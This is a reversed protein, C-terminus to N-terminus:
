KRRYKTTLQLLEVKYKKLLVITLIILALYRVFWYKIFLGAILSIAFFSISYIIYKACIINTQKCVYRCIIMHFLMLAFYGLFTTLAAVEYGVKNLLILNLIWNIVAALASGIAIYKTKYEITEFTAYYSYIYQCFCGAVIPNIFQATGWYKNDALVKIIEPASLIFMICIIFMFGISKEMKANIQNDDKCYYEYLFPKIAMSSANLLFMIMTGITYGYSYLGTENNTFYNSIMIRDIQGLIIMALGHFIMPIAIPFAFKLYDFRYAKIKLFGINDKIILASIIGSVITIGIVRGYYTNNKEFCILVISLITSVLARSVCILTYKKYDGLIALKNNYIDIITYFVLEIWLLIILKSPIKLTSELVNNVNGFLSLFVMIIPIIIAVRGVVTVYEDIRNGYKNKAPAVSYSLGFSSVCFIISNWSNFLSYTGYDGVSMIRTFIPSTIIALGSVLLNGLTYILTGSFISNKNNDSMKEKDKEKM